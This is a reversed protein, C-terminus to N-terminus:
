RPSDKGLLRILHGFHLKETTKTSEKSSVEKYREWLDHLTPPPPPPEVLALPGTHKGNSILWLWLDAQPPLDLKGRKLLDLNEVVDALVAKAKEEDKTGIAKNFAKGGFRFYCFWRGTRKDPSISAM